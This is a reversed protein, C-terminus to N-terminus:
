MELEEFAKHLKLTAELMLYISNWRTEVDLCVLGKYKINQQEVCAKFKFLRSPSSRVYKVAGCTRLIADINDKFGEKVILNLIHTCCRM